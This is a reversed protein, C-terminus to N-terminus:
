QNTGFGNLGDFLVDIETGSNDTLAFAIVKDGTGFGTTLDDTAEDFALPDGTDVSDSTAARSFMGRFMFLGAEGAALGGSEMCLGIMAWEPDAGTSAGVSNDMTDFFGTTANVSATDVAVAAGYGVANTSVMRYSVTALVLGNGPGAIPISM